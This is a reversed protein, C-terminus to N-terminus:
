SYILFFIRNYFFFGILGRSHHLRYSRQYGLRVTPHEFGQLSLEVALREAISTLTVPGRLHGNYVCYTHCALSDESSLPWSHQPYTLIQMRGCAITVNGFSHFIRSHSSFGSCVILTEVCHSIKQLQNWKSGNSGNFLLM